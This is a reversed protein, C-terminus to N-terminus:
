RVQPCSASRGESWEKVTDAIIGQGFLYTGYTVVRTKGKEIRHVDTAARIGGDDPSSPPGSTVNSRFTIETKNSSIDKVTAWYYSTTRKYGFGTHEIGVRSYNMCEDFKRKLDSVVQEYNRNVTTDVLKSGFADSAVHSVFVTRTAPQTACAVLAVLLVLPLYKMAEM